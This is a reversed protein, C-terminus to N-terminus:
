NIRRLEFVTPEGTVRGNQVSRWEQRLRDPGLFVLRMEGMYGKHQPLLNTVGDTRFHIAGGDSPRAGGRARMRPQNGMACYHTMVLDPGDMHYVNTMEHDTGPFMIERVVSGGSSVAYVSAPTGPEKASEWEGALSKVRELAAGDHVVPPVSPPTESVATSESHVSCGGGGLLMGALAVCAGGARVNWRM